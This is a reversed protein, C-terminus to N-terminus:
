MEVWVVKGTRAPRVGWRHALAAVMHLGRGSERDATDGALRPLRSDHDGVEVVIRGDSCRLRVTIDTRAHRVANTVLESVVILANEVKTTPEVQWRRLTEEAAKRAARPASVALAFRLEVGAAPEDLARPRVVLVAVDDELGDDSGMARLAAQCVPDGDPLDTLAACLRAIGTEIDARRREVLGDTYLVLAAGPAIAVTHEVYDPMGVGLPPGTELELPRCEGDHLLLPPLHGANALTVTGVPDHVGYVCTVIQVADLAQVLDDLHHLLAAPTLDLAACSRVAARLQGMVAAAHVGRGMVDGIVFGTRGGALPVVDFWDGGVTAESAGPLYASETALGGTEALRQPLLSRQLALAVEREREYRQANDLAAAARAAIDSALELDQEDYTRRSVSTAFSLAGLVTGRALLPVVITSRLGVARGFAASDPTPSTRALREDDVVPVLVGTRTRVVEAVPHEDPYSLLGSRGRWAEGGPPVTDAHVLAIRRFMGGPEVLDVICHDAFTPVTLDALTALTQDSDLTSGLLQGARSLLTLRQTVAAVAQEAMRRKTIDIVVSALGLPRGDDGHLRFYSCSFLRGQAYTPTRGWLELDTVPEGTEFARRMHPLVTDGFGPLAEAITHGLLREDPLGIIGRLVGNVRVYRLETDFLGLGVTAGAFLADLMPLWHLLDAAAPLERRGDADGGAASM